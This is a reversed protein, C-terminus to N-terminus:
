TISKTGQDLVRGSVCSLYFNLLSEIESRPVFIVILLAAGEPWPLWVTQDIMTIATKVETDM